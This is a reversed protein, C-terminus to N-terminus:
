KRDSFSFNLVFYSGLLAPIGFNFIWMILIISMITLSSLGIFGFVWLAVSGKVLWDLMALGPVISALFYMSSILAMLTLYDTEVGFTRLLFLFQHSFVLYRLLSFGINFLHKKAPMAKIFELIKDLYFGHIRRVGRIGGYAILILLVLLYGLKRFPFTGIDLSFHSIFYSLGALGLVVTITMQGMNGLLNLLMIKRRNGKKYYIAKAGYEGIRNPTFLSATLSGLSQQMAESFTIKRVSSALSRWKLIEFTWNVLSFLFLIILTGPNNFLKAELQNAFVEFGLHENYVIKRYIYYSTGAVIALKILFVAIQKTKYTLRDYMRAFYSFNVTM